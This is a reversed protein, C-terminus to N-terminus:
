GGGPEGPWLAAKAGTLQGPPQRAGQGGGENASRRPGVWGGVKPGVRWGGGALPAPEDLNVRGRPSRLSGRRAPRRVLPHLQDDTTRHRHIAVAV